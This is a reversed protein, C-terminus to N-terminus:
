AAQYFFQGAVIKTGSATWAANTSDKYCTVTTSSQPFQCRGPTSTVAGNDYSFGSMFIAADPYATAASGYPLTFTVSVSNSTGELHFQVFVIDGVKKTLILRRNATLSSWGVVSSSLYYDTWIKNYIDGTVNIDGVVTLTQAPTTTGIGVNGTNVIVDGGTGPTLYLDGGVTAVENGYFTAFAGRGASVDGGGGIRTIKNDSADATNTYIDLYTGGQGIISGTLGITGSVDLKYGPGTTGIGVNGAITLDGQGTTVLGKTRQDLEQIAKVALVGFKSYDLAYYQDPSSPHLVVEPFLADVEQAIFGIGKYQSDPNDVFNFSIPRLSLVKDLTSSPLDAVNTKLRADSLGNWSGDGASVYAKDGANYDVHMRNDANSFSFSWSNTSDDDIIGIGSRATSQKVALKFTPATTGIGVNGSSNVLLASGAASEMMEVERIWANGGTTGSVYYVRWYRHAGTAPFTYVEATTSTGVAIVFNSGAQTWSSDNDSYELKMTAANAFGFTGDKSITLKRIHKADGAGFDIKFNTNANLGSSDAGSTGTNDDILAASGNGATFTGSITESATVDAGYSASQAFVELPGSPGTTGIGVNGNNLVTVKSSWGGGGYNTITGIDFQAASYFGLRANNGTPYLSMSYGGASQEIYTEGVVNLKANPGTTGIGVNGDIFVSGNTRLTPNSTNIQLGASPSTTGIGVNGDTKIALRTQGASTDVIEFRGGTLSDIAWDEASFLELRATGLNDVSNIRITRDGNGYVELNKVPGTTGIGVNGGVINLGGASVNLGGTINATAAILHGSLTLDTGTAGASLGSATNINAQEVSMRLAGNAALAAPIQQATNSQNVGYLLSVNTGTSASTQTSGDSFTVNPTLLGGTINATGIVTLQQLPSTTGVGVNGNALLTIIENGGAFLSLPGSGGRISRAYLNAWLLAAGGLDYTNNIKPSLAISESLNLTTDLTGDPLTKLPVWQTGNYGYLLTVNTSADAYTVVPLFLVALAILSIKLYKATCKSKIFSSSLNQALTLSHCFSGSNRLAAFSNTL